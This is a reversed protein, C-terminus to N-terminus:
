RRLLGTDLDGKDVLSNSGAFGEFSSILKKSIPRLPRPRAPIRSVREMWIFALATLVVGISLIFVGAPTRFAEVTSRQTSLLGLLLWPAVAGLVASNRVWGFRTDIEERVKIEERLFTSLMRLTGIVEKGGFQKAFLLTSLTQDASASDLYRMEFNLLDELNEGEALGERVREFVPLLQIPGQNALNKISESISLGAQLSAVIEDIAVPWVKDREIRLREAKRKAIIFPVGTFLLSVAVSIQLSSTLLLVVLLSSTLAAFIQILQFPMEANDPFKNIRNSFKAVGPVKRNRHFHLITEDAIQQWGLYALGAALSGIIIPASFLADPVGDLSPFKMVLDSLLDIKMYAEILTGSGGYTNPATGLLSRTM